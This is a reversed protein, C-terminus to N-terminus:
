NSNQEQVQQAARQATAKDSAPANQIMANSDRAAAAPLNTSDKAIQAPTNRGGFTPGALHVVRPVAVATGSNIVTQKEADTLPLGKAQEAAKLLAAQSPQHDVDLGDGVVSRGWLDKATSVEYPQVAKPTKASAEPITASSAKGVASNIEGVAEAEEAPSRMSPTVSPREESLDGKVAGFGLTGTAQALQQQAGLSAVEQIPMGANSEAIKLTEYIGPNPGSPGGGGPDSM